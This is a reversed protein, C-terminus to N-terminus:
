FVSCLQLLSSICIGKYSEPNSDTFYIADWGANIAGKVDSEYSDGIMVCEEKKAEALTEALRFIKEEPKVLAHDESIIINKFYDRLGSGDLKIAQSEAFGNTILHLSYNKKLYTLTEICGPKLVTGYPALRLYEDSLRISGAMDSYGFHAFVKNFRENRMQEKNVKRRYYLSWMELNIARYEKLFTSVDCNLKESLGHEAFLKSLVTESNAKFDWLTDDLDFFLHKKSRLDAM